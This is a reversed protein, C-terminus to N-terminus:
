LKAELLIKLRIKGAWYKICGLLKRTATPVAVRKEQLVFDLLIKLSAM